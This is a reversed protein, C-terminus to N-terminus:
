RKACRRGASRLVIGFIIGFEARGMSPMRGSVIAGCIALRRQAVVNPQWIFVACVVGHEVCQGCQDRCAKAAVDDRMFFRANRNDTDPHSRIQRSFRLICGNGYEMDFGRKRRTQRYFARRESRAARSFCRERPRYEIRYRRYLAIARRFRHPAADTRSRDGIHASGRARHNGMASGSKHRDDIYFRGDTLTEWFLENSAGDAFLAVSNCHHGICVTAMIASIDYNGANPADATM